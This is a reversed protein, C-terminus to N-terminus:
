VFGCGFTLRIEYIKADSGDPLSLESDVEDHLKFSHGITVDGLKGRFGQFAERIKVANSVCQAKDLSFSHFIANARTFVRVGDLNYDERINDFHYMVAPNNATVQTQEIHDPYVKPGWGGFLDNLKGYTSKRIDGM